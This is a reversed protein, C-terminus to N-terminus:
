DTVSMYGMNGLFNFLQTNKLPLNIPFGHGVRAARRAAGCRREAGSRRPFEPVGGGAPPDAARLATRGPGGGGRVEGASDNPGGGLSLLCAQTQNPDM